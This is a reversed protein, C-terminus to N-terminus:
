GGHQWLEALLAGVEQRLEPASRGDLGARVRAEEGPLAAEALALGPAWALSPLQRNYGFRDALVLLRVALAAREPGPRDSLERVALAFLVSGVVPYDLFGIGVDDLIKRTKGLLDRHMGAVAEARGHRVHATLAAAEAYMTWPEFGIMTELGPFARASLTTVADRYGRLGAETRGAALDLEPRGCLMVIAAGFVGAGSDEAEIEDFIREADAIRGDEMAGLALVAKLQAVDEDAGLAELVPIADRAYTMAEDMDGVQMTLGALQARILAPGWPGEADDALELAQLGRQQALRVEGQNEHFQSSWQMALAAVRRDDDACLAELGDPRRDDLSRRATLLVTAAIDSRTRRAGTGLQELRDFARGALSDAFIMTNFAIAVLTTRLAEELEPPVQAEVVVDEVAASVNVVKLHSGEITWFDSLCAMLAAVAHADRGRLCRRLLDVLNGEETRIDTMTEVQRPGFLRESCRLAFEVGWTRLRTLTEADDGAGVLQMQGFERVTELLRYRVSGGSETVTVLSQDVLNSLPGLPDGDIVAEAGELSFGDRFISLRRLAVREEDHLLNWSWDIVALLTQHREPADRSGGRLLAFRDEIRRGIEVVSMVRVKAAALEVALPLGDLRAVLSRVEDEDLRVGPRAATAREGFLEVADDLGLQPLQYVREAALGLPARSTTLVRLDPTRQVLVSVLDAVAEVLHECNDLILLAPAAGIQDLIRGALDTRRAAASTLRGAVSERVGLVDGVEVAVGEPSTVGALEVFHVVPQEALRGMLHALRTKGLGGPGVISTVRSARIMEELAVVDDARGILRSAEYLLGARVPHDRALLDAHLARLEPGPDVGLRDALDERYAEYRELAAPVGHVGAVSRLLAAVVEDDPSARELLPLAAVYDGAAALRLAEPRLAWADVDDSGLALRYGRATREITEAGIASRARSVVVQLAKTPNAPVDDGWIEEVLSGESLGRSGADVLARLLAHTREGPVPDGSWTVDDLVTLRPAPPGDASSPM